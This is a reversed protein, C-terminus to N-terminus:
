EDRLLRFAIDRGHHQSLHIWFRALHELHGAATLGGAVIPEFGLDRALSATTGVSESDDGALFMTAPTEDVVPATMRNAGITNFAKVVHAEPAADAIRAAIPRESKATPYENATDIVPKDALTDRLDAAVTVIASASLALMVVDGHTAAAHQSVVNTDQVHNTAPDRSGVVIDHGATTLGAALASGVNGTGIIGIKM